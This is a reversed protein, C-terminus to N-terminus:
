EPKEEAEFTGPKFFLYHGIEPSWFAELARGEEGLESRGKYVCSEFTESTPAVDSGHLRRGIIRYIRGLGLEMAPSSVM